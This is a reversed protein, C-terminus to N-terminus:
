LSIDFIIKDKLFLIEKTSLINKDTSFKESFPKEWKIHISDRDRTSKDFVNEYNVFFITKYIKGSKNYEHKYKDLFVPSIICLFDEFRKGIYNKKNNFLYKAFEQPIKKPGCHLFGFSVAQNQISIDKVIINELFLKEAEAFDSIELWKKRPFFSSNAIISNEWVINMSVFTKKNKSFGFSSAYYCGNNDLSSIEIKYKLDGLLKSFPKGIYKAKKVEFQKLYSLTDIQAFAKHSFGVLFIITIIFKFFSKMSISIYLLANKVFERQVSDQM